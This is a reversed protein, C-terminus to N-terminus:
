NTILLILLSLLSFLDSTSVKRAAPLDSAVCLLVGKVIESGVRWGEWLVLLEDVLPSLYTNINGSPEHPGPIVGVLIVNEIKFRENRPLNMVVLYIMGVSYRALKFPQFWDVNLMFALSREGALLPEGDVFLFERWVRGDVVDALIESVSNLERGTKWLNCKSWFDKRSLFSKLTVLIKMYSYVKHPYLRISGDKLRVEKLLHGGNLEGCTARFRRHRHNPFPRHSCKKPIRRRGLTVFCDSFDYLSHCNPCVVYKISRDRDLGLRKRILYVSTPLFMVVGGFWAAHRQCVTFLTNLFRLMLELASDSIQFQAIWFLLFLCIWKVLALQISFRGEDEAEVSLSTAPRGGDLDEDNFDTVVDEIADEWFELTNRAKEADVEM